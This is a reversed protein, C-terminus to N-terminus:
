FFLDECEFGLFIYGTNVIRGEKITQLTNLVEVDSTALTNVKGIVYYTITDSM